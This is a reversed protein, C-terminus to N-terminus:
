RAKKKARSSRATRTERKRNKEAWKRFRAKNACATECFRQRLDTVRFVLGCEECEDLRDRKMLTRAFSFYCLDRLTRHRISAELPPPGGLEVLADASPWFAIRADLRHTLYAALMMSVHNIVTEPEHGRLAPEGRREPERALRGVADSDGRSAKSIDVAWRALMRLETACEDYESFRERLVKRKPELYDECDGIEPQHLLLGYRKVFAVADEPSYIRQAARWLGTEMRADYLGGNKVEM